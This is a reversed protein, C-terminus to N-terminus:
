NNNLLEELASYNLFNTNDAYQDLGQSAPPPFNLQSSSSSAPLTQPQPPNSAQGYTNSSAPQYPAHQSPGPLNTSTRPPPPQPPQHIALQLVSKGIAQFREINGNMQAM